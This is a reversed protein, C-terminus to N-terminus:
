GWGIGTPLQYDSYELHLIRRHNDSRSKNSSHFLLPRMLLADGATAACDRATGKQALQLIQTQKLAGPKHSGSIVRLCGNEASTDNLHLRLTIMNELLSTPPQAHHIGAKQSWHQWGQNEFRDSVAVTQDQHWAVPWNQDRNKDFLIARVLKPTEDMFLSAAMLLKDSHALKAIEPVIQDARRIGGRISRIRSRQIAEVLTSIEATNLFSRIFSFGSLAVEDQWQKETVTGPHQTMRSRQWNNSALVLWLYPLGFM